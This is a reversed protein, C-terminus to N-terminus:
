RRRRGFALVPALAMLAAPAPIISVNDLGINYLSPDGLLAEPASVGVQIFGVNSFVAEFTSGEFSVFAPNDPSIDFSLTTWQGAFVPQFAVAVAGPFPAGFSDAAVRVFFTVPVPIDHRVAFSLNTVGADIWDGIFAGDSADTGPFFGKNGRFAVNFADEESFEFGTQSQIYGSNGVGGTAFETPPLFDGSLWNNAGTDFTETFPVTPAALAASAAAAALLAATKM